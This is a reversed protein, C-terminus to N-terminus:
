GAKARQCYYDVMLPVALHEPNEARGRTMSAMVIRNKLAIAGLQFPNLLIQNSM